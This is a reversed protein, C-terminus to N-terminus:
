ESAKFVAQVDFLMIPVLSVFPNERKDRINLSVASSLALYKCLPGVKCMSSAIVFIPLVSKARQDGAITRTLQLPTKPTGGSGM